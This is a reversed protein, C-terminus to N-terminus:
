GARFVFVGFILVLLAVARRLAPRYMVPHTVAAFRGPSSNKGAETYAQAVSMPIGKSGPFPVAGRGIHYDGAGRLRHQSLILAQNLASGKASRCQAEPAAAQKRRVLSVTM